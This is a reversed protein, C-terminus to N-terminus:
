SHPCRCYPCDKLSTFEKEPRRTETMSGKLIQEVMNPRFLIPREEFAPKKGHAEGKSAELCSTCKHIVPYDKQLNAGFLNCLLVYSERRFYKCDASCYEGSAVEAEVLIKIGM